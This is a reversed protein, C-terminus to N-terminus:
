TAVFCCILAPCLLHTSTLSRGFNFRDLIYSLLCQAPVKIMNSMQMCVEEETMARDVFVGNWKLPCAIRLLEPTEAESVAPTFGNLECIVDYTPDAGAYRIPPM